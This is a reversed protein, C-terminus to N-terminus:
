RSRTGAGGARRRRARWPRDKGAHDVRFLDWGTLWRSLARRAGPRSRATGRRGVGPPPLHVAITLAAAVLVINKIVYQGAMTPAPVNGDWMESPLVVLTAFTGTMHVFFVVLTLRLLLGTVLGAGVLMEMVALLPRSVDAPVRDSTLESMVRTALDEAHSVNPLLKLAGFWLFLLGVSVRLVTLSRRRYPDPFTRPGSPAVLVEPATTGQKETAAIVNRQEPSM